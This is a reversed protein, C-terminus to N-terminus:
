KAGQNQTPAQVKEARDKIVNYYARNLKELEVNKKALDKQFQAIKYQLEGAEACGKIYEDRLETEPNQSNSM